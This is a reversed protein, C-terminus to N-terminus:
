VKYVVWQLKRYEVPSFKEKFSFLGSTESGGLNLYRYGAKQLLRCCEVILYESLNPFEQHLTISAYLGVTDDSIPEMAFFAAAKGAIRILRSFYMKGNNGLPPYHIINDYDSTQSIHLQKIDLYDFFKNVIDHAEAANEECLFESTTQDGFKSCFYRYNTKLGSRQHVKLKELVANVDLIQEAFTDDEEMAQAHWPYDEIPSFGIDLLRDREEMTLKKVFVPVGSLELLHRCLRQLSEPDFEGMPNVVHFHWNGGLSFRNGIGIGALMRGDFYKLGLRDPGLGNAAQCVYYFSNGYTQTKDLLRFDRFLQRDKGSIYSVRGGFRKITREALLNKVELTNNETTPIEAQEWMCLFQKRQADAFAFDQVVLVQAPSGWLITAVKDGYVCITTPNFFHEPIWRHQSKSDKLTFADGFRTLVRTEIGQDVLQRWRSVIDDPNSEMFRREDVGSFYVEGGTNGLTQHIDDLVAQVVNNGELTSMVSPSNRLEAKIPLVGTM